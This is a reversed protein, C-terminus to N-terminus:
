PKPNLTLASPRSPPEHTSIAGILLRSIFRSLPSLPSLRSTPAAIIPTLFYGGLLM